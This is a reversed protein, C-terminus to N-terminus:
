PTVTVVTPTAPLSLFGPLVAEVNTTGTSLANFVISIQFESASTTYVLSDSTSGGQTLNGVLGDSSSVTIDLPPINAASLRQISSLGTGSANSVGILLDFTDIAGVTLSGSLGILHVAPQAITIAGQGSSFGPASATVTVDGMVGAVGQVVYRATASGDPVFVDIFASGPTVDDPAILALAPNSSEIRVTVGGHDSIDLNARNDFQLGSGITRSFPRVFPALVTLTKSATTTPVFGPISVTVVTTGASRPVFLPFWQFSGAAPEFSVSPGTSGGYSVEGVAGDSSSVTIQIPSVNAANIGQFSSLGTGAGNPVGVLISMGDNIGVTQTDALASVFIAPEVVDVTAFATSFGPATATVTATGRAGFVGQTVYPISRSGDPVFVDVFVAGPTVTDPALLVMSPDSSELRVTVGGHNTVDISAQSSYQLGGGLAPQFLRISPLPDVTITVQDPDSDLLGDNVVLEAMYVGDLDAEFTPTVLTTDSLVAASGAPVTTLTWAYTLVDGDLDSSLSGDLTVTGLAVTRNFGAHARPPSNQTRVVVTKPISDLVSDNVVLQIVYTGHEDAVFSPMVATPDDLVAGSGSPVSSFSWQFTIADGDVDDSASGDLIVTDTIFVSQDPGPDALPASNETVIKVSDPGSDVNGDNAILQVVYTGPLDVEFTPQAAAPNSLIAGSGSPLSTFSWRFSLLDNDADSSASSDLSM